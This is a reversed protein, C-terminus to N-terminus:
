TSTGTANAKTPCMWSALSSYTRLDQLDTWEYPEIFEIMVESMREMGEPTPIVLSDDPPHMNGLLAPDPSRQRQRRSLQHKKKRQSM